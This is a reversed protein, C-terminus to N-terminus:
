SYLGAMRSWDKAGARKLAKTIGVSRMNLQKNKRAEEPTMYQPQESYRGTGNLADKASPDLASLVEMIETEDSGEFEMITAMRRIVDRQALYVDIFISRSKIAGDFESGKMNSINIFQGTFNFTSPPKFTTNPDEMVADMWQMEYIEREERSMMSVNATSAGAWSPARDGSDSTIIKMMDVNGKYWISDSDDVVVIKNKNMLFTMYFGMGLGKMGEYYAWKGQPGEQYPGLMSTLTQKIGFTKGIGGMGAVIMSRWHGSAIVKAGERIDDFVYKPNAYFNNDKLKAQSVSTDKSFSTVEGIGNQVQMWEEYVSEIGYKVAQAQLQAASNAYSLGIGNQAAFERRKEKKEDPSLGEDLELISESLVDQITLKPAKRTKIAKFLEDKLKVINVDDNWSLSLSPETLTDGKEWYDVGGLVFGGKSNNYSNFRIQKGTDSLYRAGIGKKSDNKIFKDTWAYQFKAGLQKSAIKAMLNSVKTLDKMGFSAEQINSEQLASEFETDVNTRYDTFKM